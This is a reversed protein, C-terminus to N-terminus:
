AGTGLMVPTGIADRGGTPVKARKEIPSASYVSSRSAFPSLTDPGSSPRTNIFVSFTKLPPKEVVPSGTRKPCLMVSDTFPPLRVPWAGAGSNSSM